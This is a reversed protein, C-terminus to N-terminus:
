WRLQKVADGDSSSVSPPKQTLISKSLRSLKSARVTGEVRAVRAVSKDKRAVPTGGRAHNLLKAPRPVAWTADLSLSQLAEGLPLFTPVNWRASSQLRCRPFGAVRLLLAVRLSGGCRKAECRVAEGCRLQRAVPSHFISERVSRGGGNCLLANRSSLAQSCRSANGQARRRRKLPDERMEEGWFAGERNLLRDQSLQEHPFGGGEVTGEVRSVRAVSEGASSADKTALGCQRATGCGFNLPISFLFPDIKPLLVM